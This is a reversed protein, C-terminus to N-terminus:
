EDERETGEEDFFDRVPFLLVPFFLRLLCLVIFALFPV